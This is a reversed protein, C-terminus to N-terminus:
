LIVREVLFLGSPIVPEFVFPWVYRLILTPMSVVLTCPFTPSQWKTERELFRYESISNAPFPIAIIPLMSPSDNLVIIDDDPRYRHYYWCSSTTKSHHKMPDPFYFKPAFLVHFLPFLHSTREQSDSTLTNSETNTLHRM